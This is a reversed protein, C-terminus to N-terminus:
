RSVDNKKQLRQNIVHKILAQSVKSVNSLKVTSKFNEIGIDDVLLGIAEDAFSPSLSTEAFDLEVTGHKQILQKIKDRAMAGQVRTALTNFEEPIVLKFSTM